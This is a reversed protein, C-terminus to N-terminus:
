DGFNLTSLYDQGEFTGIHGAIKSFEQGLQMLAQSAAQFSPAAAAGGSMPVMNATAAIKLMSSATNAYTAMQTFSSKISKNMMSEAQRYSTGKVWAETAQGVYVGESQISVRGDVGIDFAGGSSNMKFGRKAKVDFMGEVEGKWHGTTLIKIESNAHDLTIKHENGDDTALILSGGRTFKILSGSDEEKVGDKLLGQTTTAGIFRVQFEGEKNITARVGNFEFYLNHGDDKKEKRKNRPDEIGGLIIGRKQDGSLCLIVVKSGEGVPETLSRIADPRLTAHFRDAEGGFLTSITAGRYISTTTIGNGDRYQVEVEYEVTQKGYSLPNDPYILKKIEGLRLVNDNIQTNGGGSIGRPSMSVFSPIVTGDGLVNSM